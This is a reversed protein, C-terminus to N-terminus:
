NTLRESEVGQGLRVTMGSPARDAREVTYSHSVLGKEAVAGFSGRGFNGSFFGIGFGAEM